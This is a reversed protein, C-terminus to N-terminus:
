KQSVLNNSVTIKVIEPNCNVRLPFMASYGLGRSVYLKTNNLSYEGGIYEGEELFITSPIWNGIKFQGGHTHGSVVMDFDYQSILKFNEPRHVLLVNFESPDLIFKDLREKVAEERAKFSAGGGTFFRADDLGYLHVGGLDIDPNEEGLYTVGKDSMLQKLDNWYPAYEEHNGTVFFCQDSIENAADFINSIDDLSKTHSDILDGTFFVYRVYGQKKLIDIMNGNEFDLSRHHYDSIVLCSFDVGANKFEYSVIDLKDSSVACFVLGVLCCALLVYTAIRIVRKFINM